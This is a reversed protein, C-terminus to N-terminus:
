SGEDGTTDVITDMSPRIKPAAQIWLVVPIATPRGLLIRLWPPSSQLAAAQRCTGGVHSIYNVLLLQGDSDLESDGYAREDAIPFLWPFPLMNEGVWEFVSSTTRMIIFLISSSLPLCSGLLSPGSRFTPDETCFRVKGEIKRVM